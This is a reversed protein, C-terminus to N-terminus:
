AVVDVVDIITGDRYEVLAAPRGTREIPVRAVTQRAASDKLQEISVVSLGHAILRERLEGARPNVAIGGETVLVDISEGPTSVTNVRDVVKPNGGAALRTTVIALKAGAATDSHGGSGGLILGRSGTTVNVNFDLDIEAAGLIVSDLQNVVAGRNHPNAYM